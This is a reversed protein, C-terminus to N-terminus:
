VNIIKAPGGISNAMASRFVDEAIRLERVIPELENVPRAQTVQGPLAASLLGTALLIAGLKM